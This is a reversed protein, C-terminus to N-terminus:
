CEWDPSTEAKVITNEGPFKGGDQRGEEACVEDHGAIRNNISQIKLSQPVDCSNRQGLSFSIRAKGRAWMKDSHGM